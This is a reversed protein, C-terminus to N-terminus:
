HSPQGHHTIRELEAVFVQLVESQRAPAQESMWAAIAATAHRQAVVDRQGVPSAYYGIIADLEENTLDTTAVAQSWITLLEDTAFLQSARAAFRNFAAEIAPNITVGLSALRHDVVRKGTMLLGESSEALQRDFSQRLGQADLLRRIRENRDIDIAASVPSTM